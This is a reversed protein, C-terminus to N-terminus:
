RRAGLAVGALDKGLATRGLGGERRPRYAQEALLERCCGPGAAATPPRTCRRACRGGGPSAASSRAGTAFREADPGGAAAMRELYDACAATHAAANEYHDIAGRLSLRRRRDVWGGSHNSEHQRYLVLPEAVLQIPGLVGALFFIWEDHLM